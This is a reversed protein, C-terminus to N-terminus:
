QTTSRDFPRFFCASVIGVIAVAAGVEFPLHFTNLIAQGPHSHTLGRQRALAQQISVLVEIGAVEGVQVSVMQAASMVGFESPLVENAM